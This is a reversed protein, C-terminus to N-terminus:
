IQMVLEVKPLNKKRILRSNVSKYKLLTDHVNEM